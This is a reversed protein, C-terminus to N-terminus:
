TSRSASRGARRVERRPDDQEVRAERPLARLPAGRLGRRVGRADRLFDQFVQRWHEEEDVAPDAAAPEAEEMRAPAPAAAAPRPAPPAPAPPDSRTPVPAAEFANGVLQAGDARAVDGAPIPATRPPRTPFEFASPEVSPPAAAAAFPDPALPAHTPVASAAAAARNLAEAVTGLTGALKPARADFEGREIRAAASLLGEPITPLIESPRVLLGFLLGLVLLLALSALALWEFVAVPTLAPATPTSLVLLGGEVGALPTAIARQAPARFLPPLGRMTIPPVSVNVPGLAGVGTPEGAGRRAAEIVAPVETPRGTSVVRAEPAALSVDLRTAAALDRVFADSIPVLM